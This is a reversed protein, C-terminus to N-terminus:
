AIRGFVNQFREEDGEEEDWEDFDDFDDEEDELEGEEESIAIM